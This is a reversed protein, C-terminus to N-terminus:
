SCAQCEFLNKKVAKLPPYTAGQVGRDKLFIPPPPIGKGKIETNM